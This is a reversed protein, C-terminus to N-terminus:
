VQLLRLLLLHGSGRLYYYLVEMQVNLADQFNAYDLGYVEGPNQLLNSFRSFDGYVSLKGSDQKLLVVGSSFTPISVGSTGPLMSVLGNAGAYTLAELLGADTANFARAISDGSKMAYIKGM